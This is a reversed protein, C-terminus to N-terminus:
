RMMVCLALVFVSLCVVVAAAAAVAVQIEISSEIRGNTVGCSFWQRFLSVALRVVMVVAPVRRREDAPFLLLPLPVLVLM